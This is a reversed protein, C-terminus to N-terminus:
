IYCSNSTNKGDVFEIFKSLSMAAKEKAIKQTELDVSAIDLKKEFMELSARMSDENDLANVIDIMNDQKNLSEILGEIKHEYSLAVFPVANNIAFVVSHYRAGVVCKANGIITQQVDSGYQDSLVFLRENRVIEKIERFFIIDDKYNHYNFTQPLMLINYDVYKALLIECMQSFYNLVSEHTFRDKYNYHWTLENPVFIIYPRLQCINFVEEPLVVRPTELFATDVTSIYSLGLENALLETRKDRISLFSFYNLISVSKDRYIRQQRTDTPFPGFSRGYYAIPKKLLKAIYLMNLHGWNQFGGMSIGGPASLVIDCQEYFSVLERTTPHIYWLLPCKIRLGLSFFTHWWKKHNNINVYRVCESEVKFQNVTDQDESIFLVTIKLDQIKHVLTRVLAKHASEDGRNNIPQNILLIHM